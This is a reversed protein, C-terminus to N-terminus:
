QEVGQYPTCGTCLTDIWSRGPSPGTTVQETTGCQECTKYSEQMAQSIRASAAERHPEPIANATLYFRLGGFKEKIQDVGGNWGLAKLDVALRELIPVWGPGVIGDCGNYLTDPHNRSRQNMSPGVGHKTVWEFFPGERPPTM